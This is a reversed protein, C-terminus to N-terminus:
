EGTEDPQRAKSKKGFPGAATGTDSSTATKSKKPAKIGYKAKSFALANHRNPNPKKSWTADKYDYRSKEANYRRSGTTYTKGQATEKAVTTSTARDNKKKSKWIQAQTPLAIGIMLAVLAVAQLLFKAKSM